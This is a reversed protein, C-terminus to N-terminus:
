PLPGRIGGVPAAMPQDFNLGGQLLDIQSPANTVRLPDPTAILSEAGTALRPTVLVVLETEGRRWRSSRFPTPARPTPGAPYAPARLM